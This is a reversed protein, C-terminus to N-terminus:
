RGKVTVNVIPSEAGMGEVFAMTNFGVFVYKTTVVFFLTLPRVTAIPSRDDSVILQVGTITTAGVTYELERTLEGEGGVVVFVVVVVVVVIV